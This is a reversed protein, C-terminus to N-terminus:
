EINGKKFVIIIGHSLVPFLKKIIIKFFPRIGTIKLPYYNYFYKETITFGKFRLLNELVYHSYWSVHDNRCTRAENHMLASLFYRPSWVNVTSLIIETDNRCLSKLSDMMLGPNFLHEIVSGLVVIDFKESIYADIKEIDGFHINYGMKNLKEIEGVEIDFGIVSGSVQKINHHLWIGNKIQNEALDHCVCALDVVKKNRCKEIIFSNRDVIKM